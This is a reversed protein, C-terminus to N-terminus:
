FESDDEGEGDEDDEVPDLVSILKEIEDYAEQFHEEDLEPLKEVGFKKLIRRAKSKRNDLEAEDDTDLYEAFKARLVALTMKKARKAKPEAAKEKPAEDTEAKKPRGRRKKPAEEEEAEDEPDVRNEPNKRINPEPESATGGGKSSKSLLDALLSNNKEVSATLKEIAAELSM